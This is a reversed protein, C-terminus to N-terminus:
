ALHTLEEFSEASGGCRILGLIPLFLPVSADQKAPDDPLCSVSFADRNVEPKTTIRGTSIKWLGWGTRVIQALGFADNADTNNIQM